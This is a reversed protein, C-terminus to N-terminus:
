SRAGAEKERVSGAGAHPVCEHGIDRVIQGGSADGGQAILKRIDFAARTTWIRRRQTVRRNARRDILSSSAHVLQGQDGAALRKASPHSRLGLGQRREGADKSEREEAKREM